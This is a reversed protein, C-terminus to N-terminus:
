LMRVHFCVTPKSIGLQRAIEAQSTGQALLRAVAARTRGRAKDYGPSRLVVDGRQVAAHWAGNSIGFERMRDAHAGAFLLGRHGGLRIERQLERVYTRM